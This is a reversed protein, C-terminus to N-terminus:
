LYPKKLISILNSKSEQFPSLNTGVMLVKSQSWFYPCSQKSILLQDSDCTIEIDNLHGLM